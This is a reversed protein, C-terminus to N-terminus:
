CKDNVNTSKIVHKVVRTAWGTEIKVPINYFATMFNDHLNNHKTVKPGKESFICKQPQLMKYWCTSIWDAWKKLVQKCKILNM